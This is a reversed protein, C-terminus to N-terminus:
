NSTHIYLQRERIGCIYASWKTFEILKQGRAVAFQSWKRGGTDEMCKWFLQSKTDCRAIIVKPRWLVIYQSLFPSM